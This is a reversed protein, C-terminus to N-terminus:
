SSIWVLFAFLSAALILIGLLTSACGGGELTEPRPQDMITVMSQKLPLNRRDSLLSITFVVGFVFGLLLWFLHSDM